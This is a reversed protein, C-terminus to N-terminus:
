QVFSLLDILHFQLPIELIILHLPFIVRCQFNFYVPSLKNVFAREDLGKWVYFKEFSPIDLAYQGTLEALL